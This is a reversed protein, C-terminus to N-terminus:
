IGRKPSTRKSPSQCLEYDSVTHDAARKRGPREEPALEGPSDILPILEAVSEEEAIRELLLQRRALEFSNALSAPIPASSASSLVEKVLSKLEQWPLLGMVLPLLQKWILKPSVYLTEAAAARRAERLASRILLRPEQPPDVLPSLLSLRIASILRERNEPTMRQRWLESLSELGLDEEAHNKSKRYRDNVWVRHIPNNSTGFTAKELQDIRQKASSFRIRDPRSIFPLEPSSNEISVPYGCHRLHYALESKYILDLLVSNAYIRVPDLAKWPWPSSPPLRAPDVRTLNLLVLHSHLHPDNNERSRTHVFEAGIVAQTSVHCKPYSTRARQEIEALLTDVARRHADLVRRDGGVLAAVTISKPAAVTVDYAVRRGRKFDPTASALLPVGSPACGRALNGFVSLSEQSHPIEGQLGLRHALSGFWCPSLGNTGVTLDREFYGELTEPKRQIAVHIMQSLLAKEGTVRGM